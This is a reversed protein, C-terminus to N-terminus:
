SLCKMYLKCQTKLLTRRERQIDALYNLAYKISFCNYKETIRDFICTRNHQKAYVWHLPFFRFRHLANQKKWLIVFIM